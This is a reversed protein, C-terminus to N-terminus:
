GKLAALSPLKRDAAIYALLAGGGTSIYSVQNEYGIQKIAAATDGGGVISYAGQQTAKAIAQAIAVTGAMCKDWEFIGMPGAWLITKAALIIETFDARAVPGIDVVYSGPPIDALSLTSLASQENMESAVLGDAPLWLQCCSDRLADFLRSAITKAQEDTDSLHTAQKTKAHYFPFILGGGILIHDVYRMLGEIPKAKDVLKSGGMIAVVPAQERSFLKDIAAIEQQLLYGTYREKFYTPLLSISVHNRHFTGFAENIYVDALAALAQAFSSSGATEEPYFRVNELLLVSGPALANIQEVVATGICSPAFVIPQQLLNTLTPLLRNLSYRAAYGEKPRGFHSLLIAIGGDAIVKQITPLSSRIRRDDTIIGQDTIPVNFDVRILVKKDKFSVEQIGVM